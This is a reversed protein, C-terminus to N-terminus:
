SKDKKDEEDLHAVKGNSIGNSVSDHMGANPKEMGLDGTQKSKRDSKCFYAHYFFRAFLVFYSAYMLSCYLMNSDSVACEKGSQKFQFVTYNIFCGVVMQTLQLITIAMAVGKPIRVRMARLAYYSYMLSHVFYNM